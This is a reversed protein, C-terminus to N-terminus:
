RSLSEMQYSYLQWLAVLSGPVWGMSETGSGSQERVARVRQRTSLNGALVLDIYMDRAKRHNRQEIALAVTKLRDPRNVPFFGLQRVEFERANRILRALRPELSSRTEALEVIGVVQVTARCPHLGIWALRTREPPPSIGLERECANAVRRELSQSVRIDVDTRTLDEETPCMWMENAGLQFCGPYHDVNDPRRVVLAWDDSTVVIANFNVNGPPSTRLVEDIAVQGGGNTLYKLVAHEVSPATRLLSVTALFNSYHVRKLDINIRHPDYGEQRNGAFGSIMFQDGGRRIARFEASLQVLARRQIGWLPGPAGTPATRSPPIPVDFFKRDSEIVTIPRQATPMREISPWTFLEIFGEEHGSTIQITNSISRRLRLKRIQRITWRTGVFANVLLSLATVWTDVGNLVGM